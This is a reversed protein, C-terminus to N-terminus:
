HTELILLYSILSICCKKDDVIIALILCQNYQNLLMSKIPKKSVPSQSVSQGVWGGAWGSKGRKWLRGNELDLTTDAQLESFLIHERGLIPM